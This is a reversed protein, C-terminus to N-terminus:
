GLAVITRMALAHGRQALGADALARRWAIVDEVLGPDRALREGVTLAAAEADLPSLGLELLFSRAAAVLEGGREDPEPQPERVDGRVVPAPERPAKPAARGGKPAKPPEKAQPPEKPPEKAQPPEKPPEKAQPEQDPIWWTTGNKKKWM